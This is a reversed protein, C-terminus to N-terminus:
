MLTQAQARLRACEKHGEERAYELATMRTGKRKGQQENVVANIDASAQLLFRVVDVHGTMSAFHLAQFNTHSTPHNVDAEARVLWQVPDLCGTGSFAVLPTVKFKRGALNIDARASLLARAIKLHGLKLSVFLATAEDVEENPDVGARLCSRVGDVDGLTTLKHLIGHYM